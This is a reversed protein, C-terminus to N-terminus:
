TQNGTKAVLPSKSRRGRNALRCPSDQVVSSPPYGSRFSWLITTQDLALFASPFTLVPLDQIGLPSRDEIDSEGIGDPLQEGFSLKPTISGTM